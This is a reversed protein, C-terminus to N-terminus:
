MNLLFCDLAPSKTIILRDQSVISSSLFGGPQEVKDGSWGGICDVLISFYVFVNICLYVM